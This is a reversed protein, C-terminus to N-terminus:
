GCDQGEALTHGKMAQTAEPVLLLARLREKVGGKDVLRVGERLAATVGGLGGAGRALSGSYSPWCRPPKPWNILM